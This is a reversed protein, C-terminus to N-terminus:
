EKDPALGMKRAEEYPIVDAGTPKNAHQAAAQDWFKDVEDPKLNKSDAADLLAEMEPSGATTEEAKIRKNRAPSSADQEGPAGMSRLAQGVENRIALMARVTEFLAGGASLGHGALLLAYSADVPVLILDHDGGTFVSFQDLKEQRNSRAVKLGASFNATLASILSVELSSDRLDGARAVVLGRESILFVAEAQVDQRFSALIDSFRSGDAPMTEGSEAPFITRTLGVSREVVDLFDGLPIPKNFIAAAGAGLMEDRAKRDMVGTVLIVKIDPQQARAQQMLEIGSIGPLRYDVVLLDVHRRGLEQAAEEGSAAELIELQSQKLTDLASHLLRLVDRHDDVLLIAPAM